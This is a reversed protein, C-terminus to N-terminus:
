VLFQTERALVIIFLRQAVFLLGKPILFKLKGCILYRKDIKEWINFALFQFVQPRALPIMLKGTNKRGIGATEYVIM